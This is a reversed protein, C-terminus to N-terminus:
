FFTLYEKTSYSSLKGESSFEFMIIIDKCYVMNEALGSLRAKIQSGMDDYAVPKKAQIFVVVQAKSSGPPIEKRIQEDLKASSLGYHHSLVFLGVLAIGIVIAGGGVWNRM